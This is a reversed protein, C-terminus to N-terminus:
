AAIINVPVMSELKIQEGNLQMNKNTSHYYWNVIVKQDPLVDSLKSIVLMIWKKSSSNLSNLRVNFTTPLSNDRNFAIVWKLVSTYFWNANELLSNGSIEIRHSKSDIIVEPSFKREEIRFTFM